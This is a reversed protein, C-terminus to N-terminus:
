AITHREGDALRTVNDFLKEFGAPEFTHIPIVTKARIDWVLKILDEQYIHGSAHAHVLEGGAVRLHEQCMVWDINELYGKWYSYICRAGKPLAGDFDMDVMSARFMLVYRIPDSLIEDLMIRKPAFLEEVHRRRHESRNMFAQNYYVRINTSPNKPDPVKIESCVLHMVFATYADAVFVRGANTTAKYYTVVRDVDIPSFSGLVLDKSAAIHGLIEDELQEESKKDKGRDFGVHTGEMILVDISRRQMESVLQRLMGPKRGHRRLDGSYLIAKGDGEILFAVSGFCSHDVAFPTITLNGVTFPIKSTVPVHRARELRRGKGFMSGALMMKSTGTTAYVPIDARAFELLGVHDLHSHTLLIATPPEGDTFLGPVPPIVGDHVLEETSKGRMTSSDFPERNPNVLPLGVDLIIRTDGASIEVCNGGIEKTGRHITVDM